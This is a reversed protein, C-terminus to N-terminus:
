KEIEDSRVLKNLESVGGLTIFEDMVGPCGIALIGDGKPIQTVYFYRAIGCMLSFVFVCISIIIDIKHFYTLYYSLIFSSFYSIIAGDTWFHYRLVNMYNETLLDNIELPSLPMQGKNVRWGQLVNVRKASLIYLFIALILFPFVWILFYGLNSESYGLTTFLSAITLLIAQRNSIESLYKEIRENDKDIVISASDNFPIPTGEELAKLQAYLSLIMSQLEPVTAM